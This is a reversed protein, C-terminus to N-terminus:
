LNLISYLSFNYVDMLVYAEAIKFFLRAADIDGRM